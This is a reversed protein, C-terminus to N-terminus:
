LGLNKMIVFVPIMTVQGRIMLSIMYDSFLNGDRFLKKEFGYAAMCSVVVNLVCSAVVVVVSHFVGAFIWQEPFYLYLKGYQLTVDALHLKLTQIRYLVDPVHLYVSVGRDSDCSDVFCDSLVM